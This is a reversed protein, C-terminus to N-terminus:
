HTLVIAPLKVGDWIDGSKAVKTVSVSESHQSNSVRV